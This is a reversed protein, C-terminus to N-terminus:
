LLSREFMAKTWFLVNIFVMECACVESSFTLLRSMLPFGNIPNGGQVVIVVLVSYQVSQILMIQSVCLIFPAVSRQLLLWANCFQLAIQGTFDM